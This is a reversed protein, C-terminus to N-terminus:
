RGVETIVTLGEMFGEIGLGPRDSLVVQNNILQAGNIVPNNKILAIPDLDAFLIDPKSLAFSAMAAIGIPSELMCGVMCSLYASSAIHYIANAQYIGGSKMLKINIGDSAHIKAIALADMPSFCSEDAIISSEVADRVFKLNELDQAKVPQEVLAVALNQKELMKIIKVASKADWGQNADILIKISDGVASRVAKIREMDEAPNLGVKIKLVEYGQEAFTKADEAMLHADKVSVTICTKIKNSSAGLLKYLPLQCYQAFLDHLAIDLAAKASSNKKVTTQISHLLQNFHDIRQGILKPALLTQIIHIISSQSEGTIAPTAAASGYGIAGNDTKIMVVVDEVYETRRVATIFPRILPIKLTALTITTIQMM